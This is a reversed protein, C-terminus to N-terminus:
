PGVVLAKFPHHNQYMKQDVPDSKVVYLWWHKDDELAHWNRKRYVRGPSPSTPTSFDYASIRDWTAWSIVVHRSGPPVTLPDFIITEPPIESLYNIHNM